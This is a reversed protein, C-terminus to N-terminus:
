GALWCLHKDLEFLPISIAGPLHGDLFDTAFRVDVIVPVDGSDLKAKLQQMSMESPIPLPTPPLTPAAAPPPSALMMLGAVLAALVVIGIGFFRIKGFRTLMTHLM